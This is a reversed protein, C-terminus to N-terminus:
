PPPKGICRNSFICSLRPIGSGAETCHSITQAITTRIAGAKSWDTLRRLTVHQVVVICGHRHQAQTPIDVILSIFGLTCADEGAPNDGRALAALDGQEKRAALM